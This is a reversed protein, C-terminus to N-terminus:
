AYQAKVLSTDVTYTGAPFGPTNPANQITVAFAIRKQAKTGVCSLTKTMTTQDYTIYTNLSDADPAWTAGDINAQFGATTYATATITDKNCGQIVLGIAVSLILIVPLRLRNM